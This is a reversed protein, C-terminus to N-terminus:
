SGVLREVMFMSSTVRNTSSGIPDSLISQDNHGYASGLHKGFGEGGRSGSGTGPNETGKMGRNEREATVVEQNSSHRKPLWIPLWAARSVAFGHLGGHIWSRLHAESLECM